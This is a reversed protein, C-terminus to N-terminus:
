LSGTTGGFAQRQKFLWDFGHPLCYGGCVFATFGNLGALLAELEDLEYESGDVRTITGLHNVKERPPNPQRCIDIHWGDYTRLVIRKSPPRLSVTWGEPLQDKVPRLLSDLQVYDYCNQNVEFDSFGVLNFRAEAIPGADLSIQNEWLAIRGTHGPRASIVKAKVSTSDQFPFPFPVQPSIRLQLDVPDDSLWARELLPHIGFMSSGNFTFVGGRLSRFSRLRM